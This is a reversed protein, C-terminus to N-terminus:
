HTHSIWMHAACYPRGGALDAEPSGCFLVSDEGCPYRCAENTLDLLTCAHPFGTQLPTASQKTSRIRRPHRVHRSETRRPEPQRKPRPMAPLGDRQRRGIVANRSLSLGFEKNLTEAIESISIPEGECLEKLRLAVAESWATTKM